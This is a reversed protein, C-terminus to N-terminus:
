QGTTVALVVCEACADGAPRRGIYEIRCGRCIWSESDVDTLEDVTALLALVDELAFRRSKFIASGNDLGVERTVRESAAASDRLAAIKTIADALTM